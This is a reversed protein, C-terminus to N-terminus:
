NRSGGVLQVVDGVARLGEIADDFIAIGFAEELRVALELRDISDVGLDVFRLKLSLGDTAVGLENALVEIVEKPKTTM